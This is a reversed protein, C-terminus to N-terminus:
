PPFQHDGTVRRGDGADIVGGRRIRVCILARFQDALKVPDPKVLLGIPELLGQADERRFLSARCARIWVAGISWCSAGIRRETDLGCDLLLQREASACSLLQAILL